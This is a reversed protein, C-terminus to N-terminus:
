TAFPESVASCAYVGDVGEQHHFRKTCSIALRVGHQSYFFFLQVEAVDHYEDVFTWSPLTGPEPNTDTVVGIVLSKDSTLRLRRRTEYARNPHYGYIQQELPPQRELWTELRDRATLFRARAWVRSRVDDPLDYLPFM